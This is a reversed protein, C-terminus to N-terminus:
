SYEIESEEQTWHEDEDKTNIEESGKVINDVPRHINITKHGNADYYYHKLNKSEFINEKFAKGEKLSGAKTKM